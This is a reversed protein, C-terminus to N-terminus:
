MFLGVGALQINSTFGELKVQIHQRSSRRGDIINHEKMREGEVSPWRETSWISMWFFQLFNSEDISHIVKLKVNKPNCPVSVWSFSASPFFSVNYSM